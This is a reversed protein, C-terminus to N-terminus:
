VGQRLPPYVNELLHKKTEMYRDLIRGAFDSMISATGEIIENYHWTKEKNGSVFFTYIPYKLSYDSFTLTGAGNVSAFMVNEQSNIIMNLVDYRKERQQVDIADDSLLFLLPVRVQPIHAVGGMKKPTIDVFWNAIGYWINSFWEASGQPPPAPYKREVEYISWLPAEVAIIGRIQPNQDIFESDSGILVLASAGADYGLLFLSNKDSHNLFPMEKIYSILFRIDEMRENEFVRGRSNAKEWSKGSIQADFFRFYTGFSAMYRKGNESVAPVDFKRRSYLIVTFGQNELEQCLNDVITASGIIPPAVLLIPRNQSISKNYIRLFIEAGRAEDKVMVSSVGDRTLATDIAPAFYLAIGASLFFCLNLIIHKVGYYKKKIFSERKIFSLFLPFNRINILIITILLPICEPRFGYVPFLFIICVLAFIPFWVLGELPRLDKILPQILYILVFFVILTELIKIEQMM